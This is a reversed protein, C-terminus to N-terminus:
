VLRGVLTYSYSTAMVDEVAPSASGCEKVVVVVVLYDYLPGLFVM